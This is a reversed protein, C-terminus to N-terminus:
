RPQHTEMLRRVSVTSLNGEFLFVEDINGHLWRQVTPYVQGIALPRDAETEIPADGTSDSGMTLKEPRGDVYIRVSPRGSGDLRMDDVVAIHHWDGDAINTGGNAFGGGYSVRPVAGNGGNPLPQARLRWYSNEAHRTEDQRGWEAIIAWGDPDNPYLKLWCAFTRPTHGLIGNWDTMVYDGRGDFSLANGRKGPELRTEAPRGDSQEPVTAIRQVAAHSGTPQFPEDGDFSWHLYPPDVPLDTAFDRVPPITRLEGGAIGARAHGAQLDVVASESSEGRLSVRVTGEFVHVEDDGEPSSRLAFETGLDVVDLDPTRVRFGRAAEPVRIWIEGHDLEMLGEKALLFESAGQVIARVGSSFNIEVAGQHLVFREGIDITNLNAANNDSRVLQFRTGPSFAFTAAPAKILVHRFGWGVLLLAVCAAVLALNWARRLSHRRALAMAESRDAVCAPAGNVLTLMAADLAAHQCYLEFTAHDSKMRSVLEACLAEELEGDLFQQVRLDLEQGKM